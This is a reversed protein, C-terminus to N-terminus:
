WFFLLEVMNIWFRAFGPLMLGNLELFLGRIDMWFCWIEVRIWGVM